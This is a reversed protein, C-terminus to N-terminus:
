SNAGGVDSDAVVAHDVVILAWPENKGAERRAAGPLGGVLSVFGAVAAARNVEDSNGVASNRTIEDGAVGIAKQNAVFRGDTLSIQHGLVVDDVIRELATNYKGGMRRDAGGTGEERGVIAYDAIRYSIIDGGAVTHLDTTGANSEEGIAGARATDRLVQDTVVLKNAIAKAANGEVRMDTWREPRGCVVHLVVGDSSIVDRTVECIKKVGGSGAADADVDVAAAAARGYRAGNDSEVDDAIFVDIDGDVSWGFHLNMGVVQKATFDADGVDTGEVAGRDASSDDVGLSVIPPARIARAGAPRATRDRSDVGRANEESGPNRLGDRVTVVSRREHGHKETSGRHSKPTKSAPLGDALCPRM